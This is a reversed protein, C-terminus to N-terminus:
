FGSYVAYKFLSFYPRMNGQTSIRQLQKNNNLAQGLTSKKEQRNEQIRIGGTNEWQSGEGAGNAPQLCAMMTEPTHPEGWLLMGQGQKWRASCMGEAQAFGGPSRQCTLDSEGREYQVFVVGVGVLMQSIDATPFPIVPMMGVNFAEATIM